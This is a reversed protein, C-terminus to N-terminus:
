LNPEATETLGQPEEPLTAEDLQVPTPRFDRPDKGFFGLRAQRAATVRSELASGPPAEAWGNDALWGAPDTNNVTCSATLPGKWNKKPVLCVLARARLFNRFATRAVAGCPWSKGDSECIRGLDQPLIGELQLLRGEGFAILGASMSVPHRLVVAVPKPREVPDSLPRRAEIRELTQAKMEEPLGFQAPAIDRVPKAATEVSGEVRADPAETITDPQMGEIELMGSDLDPVDSADPIELQFEPAAEDQRGQIVAAGSQLLVITLVIALLGGGVTLLNRNM